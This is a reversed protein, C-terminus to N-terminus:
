LANLCELSVADMVWGTNGKSGSAQSSELQWTFNVLFVWKTVKEQYCSEQWSTHTALNEFLRPWERQQRFYPFSVYVNLSAM